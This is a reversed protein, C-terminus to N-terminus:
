APEPRAPREGRGADRAVRAPRRSAREAAAAVAEARLAESPPCANEGRCLALLCFARMEAEFAPGFREIYGPWPSESQVLTAPHDGDWAGAALVSRECVAELRFEFRTPSLRSAWIQAVVGGSLVLSISATDVDRARGASGAASGSATAAVEEVERGTVWRVVDVDHVLKDRFFGGSGALYEPPPPRWSTSVIRLGILHGDQEQMLRQRIRILEPDFRRQLGVQVPVGSREAVVALELGQELTEALPKECFVPVGHGVARTVLAAHTSTPSAVVVADVRRGLMAEFDEAPEAGLEDALACTLEADVDHVVLSSVLESAALNRAHVKGINGLGALGVRLTV